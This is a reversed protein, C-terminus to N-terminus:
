FIYKCYLKGALDYNRYLKGNNLKIRCSYKKLIFFSINILLFLYYKLTSYNKKYFLILGKNRYYFIFRNRVDEHHEALHIINETNIIFNKYGSKKIRYSLDADEVYMFYNEDFGEQKKFLQKKVMFFAGKIIDVEKPYILNSNNKSRLKLLLKKIGSLELLRKTLSPFNYFSPQYSGNENRLQLGLLGINNSAEIIKLMEPLPNGRLIIDSNVFVLFNGQAIKAGQNCALAFGKNTKNEIIKVDQFEDIIMNVNNETSANDVIIIEFDNETIKEYLSNLTNELTDKNNFSVIIISVIYKEVFV